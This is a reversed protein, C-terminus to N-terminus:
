PAPLARTMAIKTRKEKRRGKWERRERGKAGNTVKIETETVM